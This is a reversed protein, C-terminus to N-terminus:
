TVGDIDKDRRQAKNDPVALSYSDAHSPSLGVKLRSESVKAHHALFVIVDFKDMELCTDVM